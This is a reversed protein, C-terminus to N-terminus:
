GGGAVQKAAHPQGSPFQWNCSGSECGLRQCYRKDTKLAFLHVFINWPLRTPAPLLTRSNGGRPGKCCYGPLGSCANKTAHASVCSSGKVGRCCACVPLAARPREFPAPFWSSPGLHTQKGSVLLKRRNGTSNAMGQCGVMSNATNQAEVEVEIMCCCLSADTGM